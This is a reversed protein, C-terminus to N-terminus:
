AALVLLEMEVGRKVFSSFFFVVVGQQSGALLSCPVPLVWQCGQPSVLLAGLGMPSLSWAQWQRQRGRATGGSSRAATLFGARCRPVSIQACVAGRGVRCCGPGPPLPSSSGWVCFGRAQICLSSELLPWPAATVRSKTTADAEPKM